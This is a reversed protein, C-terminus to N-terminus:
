RTVCYPNNEIILLSITVDNKILNFAKIYLILKNQKTEYYNNNVGHELMDLIKEYDSPTTSQFFHARYIGRKMNDM